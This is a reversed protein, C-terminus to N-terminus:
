PPGTKWSAALDETLFSSRDRGVKGLSIEFKSKFNKGLLVKKHMPSNIVSAIFRNFPGSQTLFQIPEAISNDVYILMQRKM